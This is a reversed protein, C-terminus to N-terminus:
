PRVQFPVNSSLTRSPTTVQVTGSTAGAPVVAGIETPSIVKFVAPTGNFTVSAAGTLNTGLILISQGAKGSTPVTKVFPRLGVALSFITGALSAGGEVTTGYFNGDTAQSLAGNSDAGDTSDFDHLVALSGAPTIRFVTGYTYLGGSATTGYLKGDTGLVLGAAPSSGDNFDFSHLTTLAGGSTIKFVTGYGYAGGQATTGYFSGDAAQVLGGYLTEGDTLDFSHLTTFTGAPTIKFITGCGLFCSTSAGGDITTGYLNGDTAQVLGAYPTGDKGHFDHLTTLTGGPTVKFVTGAGNTGGQYTTGYFNGDAAQVLAARPDAGDTSNFNHIVTLMGSSTIKFVTGGGYPGGSEATGYLNGDTALVVAAIPYAGATAVIDFTFVTRLAGKPTVEFITGQGPIGGFETTGYFNGNTGQVPPAYPSAGNTGNFNVVTKFSQAPAAIAAALMMFITVVAMAAWGRNGRTSAM